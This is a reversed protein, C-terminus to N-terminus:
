FPYNEKLQGEVPILSVMGNKKMIVQRNFIM